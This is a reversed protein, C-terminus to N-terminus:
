KWKLLYKEREEPSWAALERDPVDGMPDCQWVQRYVSWYTITGNRHYKNALPNRTKMNNRMTKKQSINM